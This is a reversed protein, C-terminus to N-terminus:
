QGNTGVVTWGSFSYGRKTPDNVIISNVTGYDCTDSNNLTDTVEVGDVYWELTIQNAGYVATCTVNDDVQWATANDTMSIAVGGNDTVCTWGSQTNGTLSCDLPRFNYSSDYEAGLTDVSDTEGEGCDYTVTYKKPTWHLYLTQDTETCTNSEVTGATPDTYWKGDTTYGTLTGAYDAAIARTACGWQAYWTTTPCVGDNKAIDAAVYAGTGVTNTDGLIYYPSAESIYKTGGTAANFFGNFARTPTTSAPAATTLVYPAGTSPNTPANTNYTTTVTAGTPPAILGNATSSMLNTRASDLYAGFGFKTYLTAPNSASAGGNAVNPDLTITCEDAAWQATYTVTSGPASVNDIPDGQCNANYPSTVGPGLSSTAFAPGAVMVALMSTLFIKNKM